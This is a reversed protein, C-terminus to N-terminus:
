HKAKLRVFRERLNRQLANMEHTLERSDRRLSGLIFMELEGSNLISKFTQGGGPLKNERETQYTKGAILLLLELEDPGESRCARLFRGEERVGYDQVGFGRDELASVIDSIRAEGPIVEDFHLHQYPTLTRKAFADDLILHLDTVVHSGSEPQEGGPLEGVANSLRAEVGSLLYNPIEVEVRGDLSPQEYLEGPQEILLIMTDSTFTQMDSDGPAAVHHMEVDHWEISQTLPNYRVPADLSNIKLHLARLSTITPWDLSVHAVKPNLIGDAPKRPVIVRVKMRLVLYSRFSVQMTMKPPLAAVVKTREEETLQDTSPSDISDPDLLDVDVDIPIIRAPSPEYDYEIVCTQRDANLEAPGDPGSVPVLIPVSDYGNRMDLVDGLNTKGHNELLLHGVLAKDQGTGARSTCDEVDACAQQTFFDHGDYPISLEIHGSPARQMGKRPNRSIEQEYFYHESLRAVDLRARAFVDATDGSPRAGRLVGKEVAKRVKAM